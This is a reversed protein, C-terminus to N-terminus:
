QKFAHPTHPLWCTPLPQKTAINAFRALDCILNKEQVITPNTASEGCDFITLHVISLGMFLDDPLEPIPSNRVKFYGIQKFDM